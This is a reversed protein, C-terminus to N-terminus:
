MKSEIFGDRDPNMKSEKGKHYLYSQNVQYMTGVRPTEHVRVVGTYDEELVIGRIRRTIQRAVGSSKIHPPRPRLFGSTIIECLRPACMFNLDVWDSNRVYNNYGQIRSGWMEEREDRLLNLTLLNIDKISQWAIISREFFQPILRMDDDIKFIFDANHITAQEFNSQILKYYLDKGHNKHYNFAHSNVNDNSLIPYPDCGDFFVLLTINYGSSWTLIDKNLERFHEPRNYTNIIITINM